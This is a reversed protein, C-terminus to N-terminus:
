HKEERRKIKHIHTRCFNTTKTTFDISKVTHVPFHNCNYHIGMKIWRVYWPLMVMQTVFVNCQQTLSLFYGAFVPLLWFTSTHSEPVEKYNVKITDNLVQTDTVFCHAAAHFCGGVQHPSRLKALGMSIDAKGFSGPNGESLGLGIAELYYRTFTYWNTM